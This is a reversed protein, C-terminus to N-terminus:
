RPCNEISPETRLAPRVDNRSTNSSSRPLFKTSLIAEFTAKLHNWSIAQRSENKKGKNRYSRLYPEWLDWVCIVVKPEPKPEPTNGSPKPVYTGNRIAMKTIALQDRAFEVSCNSLSVYKVKGQYAFSIVLSGNRRHIGRPLVERRM